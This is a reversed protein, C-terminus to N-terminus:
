DKILEDVTVNFCRAMNKLIRIYPERKNNVYLSIASEDCGVEKALRNQKYGKRRMLQKINDGLM